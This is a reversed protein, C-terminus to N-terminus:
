NNSWHAKFNLFRRFAETLPNIRKPLFSESEDDESDSSDTNEGPDSSEDGSKAPKYRKKKRRGALMQIILDSNPIVVGELIASTALFSNKTTEWLVHGLRGM